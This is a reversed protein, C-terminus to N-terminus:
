VKSGHNVSIGTLFGREIAATIKEGVTHGMSAMMFRADCIGLMIEEGFVKCKGVTVAEDLGTKERASRRLRPLLRASLRSECPLVHSVLARLRRRYLIHIQNFAGFASFHHVTVPRDLMLIDAEHPARRRM